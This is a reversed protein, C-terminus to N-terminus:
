FKGRIAVLKSYVGFSGADRNQHQRWCTFLPDTKEIGPLLSWWLVPASPLYPPYVLLHSHIVTMALSGESINLLLSAKKHDLFIPVQTRKGPLQIISLTVGSAKPSKLSESYLLSPCLLFSQASRGLAIHRRRNLGPYDESRCQLTFIRTGIQNILFRFSLLLDIHELNLSGDSALNLAAGEYSLLPPFPFVLHLDPHPVYLPSSCVM